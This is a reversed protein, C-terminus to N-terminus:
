SFFFNPRVSILKLIIKGIKITDGEKIQFKDAEKKKKRYVIWVDDVESVAEGKM